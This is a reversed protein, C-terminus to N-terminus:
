GGELGGLKADVDTYLVEAVGVGGPEEGASGVELYDLVAKAVGVNEVVEFYRWVRGALSSVAM